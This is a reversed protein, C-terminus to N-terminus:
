LQSGLEPRATAFELLRLLEAAVHIFTNGLLLQTPEM